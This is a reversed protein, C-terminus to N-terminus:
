KKEYLVIGSQLIKERFKQDLENLDLLSIEIFSEPLERKLESSKGGIFGLDLDSDERFTRWSEYVSGFGIILEVNPFNQGLYKAISKGLEVADARMSRLKHNADINNQNIRRAIAEIPDIM